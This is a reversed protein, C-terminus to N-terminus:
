DRESRNNDLTDFGLIDLYDPYYDSWITRNLDHVEDDTLQAAAYAANELDINSFPIKGNIRKNAGAMAALYALQPTLEEISRVYAATAQGLMNTIYSFECQGPIALAHLLEEVAAHTPFTSGPKCKGLLLRKLDHAAQAKELKTTPCAVVYSREFYRNNVIKYLLEKM